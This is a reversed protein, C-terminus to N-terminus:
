FYINGTQFVSTYQLPGGPTLSIGFSQGTRNSGFTVYMIPTGGVHILMYTPLGGPDDFNYYLTENAATTSVAMGDQGVYDPYNGIISRTFPNSSPTVTPTPTKTPTPTATSSPTNPPTTTPTVSPTVTISPTPTLTPTLSITPTISPTVTPTQTVPPTTSPTVSITPTITPTQTPTLSATPTISTTPTVTSTPTISPTITPTVSITPTPTPTDSPTVSITPTISPTITITPTISPTLSPSVTITPTVPPTPTPTPTNCNRYLIDNFNYEYSLKIKTPDITYLASFPMDSTWLPVTDLYVHFIGYIYAITAYYITGDDLTVGPDPQIALHGLPPFVEGESNFEIHNANPDGEPNLWVDFGVAVSNAIGKYGLGGGSGGTFIPNANIVFCLGDAANGTSFGKIKFAFTVGFPEPAGTVPDDTKSFRIPTNVYLTGTKGTARPVLRVSNNNPATNPSPLFVADNLISLNSSSPMSSLPLLYDISAFQNAFYFGLIDHDATNAGTSGTFGIYAANCGIAAPTITPTPTPTPTLTNAPTPAPLATSFKPVILSSDTSVILFNTIYNSNDETIEFVELSKDYTEDIKTIETSNILHFDDFKFLTDPLVNFSLNFINLVLNGNLVTVSPYYTTTKKSPPRFIHSVNVNTPTGPDLTAVTPLLNQVIGKEVNIIRNDDFDYIIKLTPFYQNDIASPIFTLTTEGKFEGLYASLSTNNIPYGWPFFLGSNATFPYVFSTGSVPDTFLYGDASAPWNISTGYVPDLFLYHNIINPKELKQYSSLVYSVFNM